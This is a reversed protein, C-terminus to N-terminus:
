AFGARVTGAIDRPTCSQTCSRALTQMPRNELTNPLPADAQTNESPLGTCGSAPVQQLANRLAKEEGQGVAKEFHAETTMLYHRAAVQPSHGLWKAAVHAPFTEVLESARTARLNVFLKKWVVVGARRIIPLLRQRLNKGDRYRNVVYQQGPLAAEFADRFLPELEPFIPVIRSGGGDLHATKSSRVTFRQKDWHVDDWTLPLIESPIRLGAWRGLGFILKMEADPCADLIAEADAQTVFHFKDESFSGCKIGDFPNEALLRRKIAGTFFQRCRRARRRSTGESLHRETRLWVAFDDAAGSTIDSLLKDGGFYALLDSQAHRYNKLTGSTIDSRGTIYTELWAALTPMTTATKGKVLGARVLRGYVTAPMEALWSATAADLPEGSLKSTYLREIHRRATEAERSTVKGLRITPRETPSM